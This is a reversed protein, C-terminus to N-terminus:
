RVASTPGTADMRLYKDLVQQPELFFTEMVGKGKIELGGRAEFCFRDGLLDRTAASIHIRGPAGYKEMRNATNVTDGWVDYVFKHTGIVGAVLPGSHIGIRLRLPTGLEGALLSSAERMEIAMEAVAAAHDPREEPVGGAVMYGDGITKIKELGLSAALADFRDFLRRLVEIMREAPLRVTLATFDVLDSFLVTAAAIRDAIVMEGRHLREAIPRPLTNLLLAESREKEASLDSYLRGLQESTRNVNTALEGLEDRNAVGIHQTFDGEAIDRLRAGIEGLPGILSLSITRGLLLALAIAGVAFGIVVLRSTRYAEESEDIGSIVDSEAKNVLQNTLRELSDALPQAEAMQAAHAESTRGARVLAILRTVVAVFKEYNQRVETLLEVEDGAVFQLRELDYGFQNLQRLTSNFALEDAAFLAASVHYLQSTSDLQVQRYAAIKRELKILQATRDNVGNLVGLGVAGLAILLAVIALFALLLKTQV